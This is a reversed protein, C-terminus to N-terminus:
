ALVKIRQKTQLEISVQKESCATDWNSDDTPSDSNDTYAAGTPAMMGSFVQTAASGRLAARVRQM